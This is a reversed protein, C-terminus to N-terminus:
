PIYKYILRTKGCDWVKRYGLRIRAMNETEGEVAGLATKTCSHKSYQKRSKFYFYDPSLVEVVEWGASVYGKTSAWTNDAWSLIDQKFYNSAAKSIRSLGGAVSVGFKGAWRNLVIGKEKGRHHPGFSGCAVLEGDSYLGLFLYCVTTHGQIHYKDFFEYAEKYDVRKVECKRAQLRTANKGFTTTLYSKIQEKNDRWKTDWIHILRYGNKEAIQQKTKHYNKGKGAEESHFWEGNYEIALNLEDIVIDFEHSSWHAKRTSFGMSNIWLTLEREGASTYREQPSRDMRERVHYSQSCKRCLGTKRERIKSIRTTHEHGCSFRVLIPQEAGAFASLLTCGLKVVSERVEDESLKRNEAAQEYEASFASGYKAKRTAASQKHACKPCWTKDGTMVKYWPSTFIHGEKCEWMMPEKASTYCSSLCKGGKSEAHVKADEITRSQKM